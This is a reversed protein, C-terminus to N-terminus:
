DKTSDLISRIESIIWDGHDDPDMSKPIKSLDLKLLEEIDRIADVGFVEEIRRSMSEDWLVDSSKNHVWGFEPDYTPEVGWIYADTTNEDVEVTLYKVDQIDM